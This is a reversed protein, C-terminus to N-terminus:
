CLNTISTTRWCRDHVIRLKVNGESDNQPRPRPVGNSNSSCSNWGFAVKVSIYAIGRQGAASSISPELNEDNQTSKPRLTLLLVQLFKFSQRDRAFPTHSHQVGSLACPDEKRRIEGVVM